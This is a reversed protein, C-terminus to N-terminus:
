EKIPRIKCGWKEAMEKLVEKARPLDSIKQIKWESYSFRPEQHIMARDVHLRFVSNGKGHIELEVDIIWSTSETADFSAETYFDVKQVNLFISNLDDLNNRITAMEREIRDFDYNIRHLEFPMNSQSM